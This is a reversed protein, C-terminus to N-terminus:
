DKSVVWTITQRKRSIVNEGNHRAPVWDPGTTIVRVAEAALQPHVEDRNVVTVESVKGQKDVKFSLIVTQKVSTEGKKIKLCTEGLESNLNKVLYDRWGTLGGPFSPEEQVVQNIQEDKTTTSNSQAFSTTAFALCLLITATHKM